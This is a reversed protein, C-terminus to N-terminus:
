SPLKSGFETAFRILHKWGLLPIGYRESAIRLRDGWTAAWDIMLSSHDLLALPRVYEARYGQQAHQILLGWAMIAGGVVPAPVPDGM